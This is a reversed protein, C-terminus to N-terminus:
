AGLSSGIWADIRAGINFAAKTQPDLDVILGPVHTTETELRDWEPRPTHGGIQLGERQADPETHPRKCEICHEILVGNM